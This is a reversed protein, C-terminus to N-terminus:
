FYFRAGLGGFGTGHTDPIISIGPGIELFIDFPANAFHYAIGIVGRIGAATHNHDDHDHLSVWAGPGYYLPLRGKPVRFINYNYWLYDGGVFFHSGDHGHNHNHHGWGHGGDLDYGLAFQWANARGQPLKLSFGSPSGLIFGIGVGDAANAAQAPAPALATVGVALAAALALGALGGRYGTKRNNKPMQRQPNHGATITTQHIHKM